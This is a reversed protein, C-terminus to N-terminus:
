LSECASETNFQNSLVTESHPLIASLVTVADTPEANALLTNPKNEREPVSTTPAPTANHVINGNIETKNETPPSSSTAVASAVGTTAPPIPLPSPSPSVPCSDREKKKPQRQTTEVENISKLPETFTPTTSQVRELGKDSFETPTTEFKENEVNEVSTIRQLVEAYTNDSAKSHEEAINILNDNESINEAAVTKESLEPFEEETNEFKNDQDSEDNTKKVVQIRFERKQHAPGVDAAKESDTDLNQIPPAIDNEPTISPKNSELESTTQDNNSEHLQQQQSQQTSPSAEQQEQTDSQNM